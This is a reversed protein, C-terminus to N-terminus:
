KDATSWDTSLMSHSMVSFSMRDDSLVSCTRANAFILFVISPEPPHYGHQESATSDDSLHGQCAHLEQPPARVRQGRALQFLGVDAGFVLLDGDELYPFRGGQRPSM